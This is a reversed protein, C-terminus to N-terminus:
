LSSLEMLSNIWTSILLKITQPCTIFKTLHPKMPPPPDRFTYRQLTNKISLGKREKGQERGRKTEKRALEKSWLMGQHDAKGVAGSVICGLPWSSFIRSGYARDM